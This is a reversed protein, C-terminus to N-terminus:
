SSTSADERADAQRPVGPREPWLVEELCLGLAPATAGARKRDPRTLLGRVWDLDRRGVGVDVLTGVLIRVMNKLFATGRVDIDVGVSARQGPFSEPDGDIECTRRAAARVQVSYLERITTRSQCDAARFSAFDHEGVLVEGAARMAAVDLARRHHWAFRSEFPDPLPGTFLRYRYHKGLNQHRPQAPGGDDGHDEWAATVVIGHPLQAGVGRALGPLPIEFPPDFAVLQGRAHVGADTRSAGRCPVPTKYLTELAGELAGQITRQGPQRAFGHFETGDYAIRLLVSM